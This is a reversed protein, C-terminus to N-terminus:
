GKHLPDAASPISGIVRILINIEGTVLDYDWSTLSVLVAVCHKGGCDFFREGFVEVRYLSGVLRIELATWTLDGKWIRELPFVRVRAFLTSPLPYKRRGAM